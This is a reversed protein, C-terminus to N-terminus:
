RLNGHLFERKEVQRGDWFAFAGGIRQGGCDVKGTGGFPEPIVAIPQGLMVVHGADRTRGGGHHDAM